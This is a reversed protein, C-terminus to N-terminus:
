TEWGGGGVGLRPQTGRRRTQDGSWVVSVKFHVRVTYIHRFLPLSMTFVYDAVTCYYVWNKLSSVHYLVPIM